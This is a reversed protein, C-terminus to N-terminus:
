DLPDQENDKRRVGRAKDGRQKYATSVPVHRTFEQKQPRKDTKIKRKREGNDIDVSKFCSEVLAEIRDFSASAAEKNELAEASITDYALM